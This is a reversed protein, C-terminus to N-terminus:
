TSRSVSRLGLNLTIKSTKGKSVYVQTKIEVLTTGCQWYCDIVMKYLQAAAGCQGGALYHQVFTLASPTSSFDSDDVNTAFGHVGCTSSSSNAWTNIRLYQHGDGPDVALGQYSLDVSIDGTNGLQGSQDYSANNLPLRLTWTNLQGVKVPLNQLTALGYRTTDTVHVSHGASNHVIMGGYDVERTKPYVEFFATKVAASICLQGPGQDHGWDREFGPLTTGQGDLTEANVWDTYSYGGTPKKDDPTIKNGKADMLDMAVLAGLSRNDPYGYIPGGIATPQDATCGPAIPTDAHASAPALLAGLLAVCSSLAVARM